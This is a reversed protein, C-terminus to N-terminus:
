PSEALPVYTAGLLTVGMCAFGMLTIVVTYTKLTEAETMGSMKSTIWFGSDNMWSISFAGFGIALFIYMPNYPLAAGQIVEYM